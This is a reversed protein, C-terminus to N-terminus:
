RKEPCTTVLEQLGLGSRFLERYKINPCVVMDVKEAVLEITHLSATPVAVVIKAPETSGLRTDTRLFEQETGFDRTRM